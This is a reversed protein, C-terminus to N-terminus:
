VNRSPHARLYNAITDAHCRRPACFCGLKVEGIRNGISWLKRLQDMVMPDKAEVKRKFWGEYMDCVEDRMSENRMYFPNGLATPRGVPQADDTMRTVTIKMVNGLKFPM